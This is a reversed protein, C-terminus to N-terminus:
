LEIANPNNRWSSGTTPTKPTFRTPAGQVLERAATSNRSAMVAAGQRAGATISGMAPRVSKIPMARKMMGFLVSAMKQQPQQPKKDTAMSTATGLTAGIAPLGEEVLGGKFSKENHFAQRLWKNKGLGKTSSKTAKQLAGHALGGAGYGLAGAALMKRAASPKEGKLKSRLLSVGGGAAYGLAAGRLGAGSRAGLAAGITAGGLPIGEDALGERFGHWDWALKELEASFASFTRSDM